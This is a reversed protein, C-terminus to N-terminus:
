PRVRGPGMARLARLGFPRTDASSPQGGEVPEALGPFALPFRESGSALPIMWSGRRM